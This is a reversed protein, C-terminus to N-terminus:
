GVVFSRTVPAAQRQEGGSGKSEKANPVIGTGRWSNGNHQEITADEVGATRFWSEVEERSHYYATPAVLQDFVNWFNEAFTYGSISCLYASYPLCRKLAPRTKAPGYLLKLGAYLLVAPPMSLCRTVFRPLRSTINKRVPDVFLEIWRNGEKGYVWTLVRGGPQLHSALAQFGKSPVPLHHIVGISYALTFPNLFPLDLIDAQVVHVNPLDRTNRFAAEVADSLDVGIVERAGFQAALFIHRGKGCGADLVIRDRFNEPTVPAIWALFEKKDADTLKSYHTWEYGFAAATAQQDENLDKRVFRPIGRVIPVSRSCNECALVGEMIEAAELKEELLSYRQGCGSCALYTLLSLKLLEEGDNRTDHPYWRM